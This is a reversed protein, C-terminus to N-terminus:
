SQEYCNKMKCTSHYLGENAARLTPFLGCGCESGDFDDSSIEKMWAGGIREGYTKFITSV